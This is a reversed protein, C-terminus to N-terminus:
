SYLIQNRWLKAYAEPSSDETKLTDRTSLMLSFSGYCGNGGMFFTDAWPAGWHLAAGSDRWWEASCSFLAAGTGPTLSSCNLCIQFPSMQKEWAWRWWVFVSCCASTNLKGEWSARRQWPCIGRKWWGPSVKGDLAVGLMPPLVGRDPRLVRWHTKWCIGTQDGSHHSSGKELGMDTMAPTQSNSAPDWDMSPTSWPYGLVSAAWSGRLSLFQCGTSLFSLTNFVHM